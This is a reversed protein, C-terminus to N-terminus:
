ALELVALRRTAPTVRVRHDIRHPALWIPGLQDAIIWARRRASPPIKLSIFFDSLKRHGQAGLPHFRDGEHWHRAQLPLALKDADVIERTAPKNALLAPLDALAGPQETIRLRAGDPLLTEGPYRLAHMPAEPLPEAQEGLELVLKDYERRVHVDDPLLLQRNPGDSEALVLVRHIHDLGIARMPAGLRDLAARVVQSAILRGKRRLGAVSLSVHRDSQDIVLPALHEEALEDMWQGAWEATLALRGIAQDVKPNYQERLLPLLNHRIRNRTMSVDINTSDERWPLGRGTLYQRAQEGTVGLMPRVLWLGSSTLKRKPRIGRLGELGTGRLIRHLVTEVNDDGQHATAITPCHETRAVAQLFLYRAQRAALEISEGTERARQGVDIREVSVPLGMQGALEAVFAADGASNDRLAHDLHAVHLHYGRRPARALDALTHLLAVSDAGGSVAVLVRGQASLLEHADVFGAVRTQFRRVADTHRAAM